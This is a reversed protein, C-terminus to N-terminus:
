GLGIRCRLRDGRPEQQLTIEVDSRRVSEGVAHRRAEDPPGKGPVDDGGHDKPEGARGSSREQISRDPHERQLAAPNTDRREAVERDPGDPERPLPLKRPVHQWKEGPCVDDADKPLGAANVLETVL